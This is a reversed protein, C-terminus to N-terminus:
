SMEAEDVTSSVKEKAFNVEHCSYYEIYQAILPIKLDFNLFVLVEKEKQILEHAAHNKISRM